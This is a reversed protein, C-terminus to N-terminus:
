RARRSGAPPRAPRRRGRGTRRGAGRQWRPGPRRRGRSPPRVTRRPAPGGRDGAARARPRPRPPRRRPGARRPDVGVHEVAGEVGPEGEAAPALEDAVELGRDGGVREALPQVPVQREREVPGAPLGVRQARQGLGPPDQGLLDPDFGPGVQAAELGVDEGLRRVEVGGVPRGAEPWGAVLGSRLPFSPGLRGGVAVVVMSRRVGPCGSTTRRGPSGSAPEVRTPRAVSIATSVSAARAARAPRPRATTILPSGPM